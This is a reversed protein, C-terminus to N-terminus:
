DAWLTYGGLQDKLVALTFCSFHCSELISENGHKLVAFNLVGEGDVCDQTAVREGVANVSVADDGTSFPFRPPITASSGVLSNTSKTM